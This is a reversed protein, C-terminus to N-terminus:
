NTTTNDFLRRMKDSLSTKPSVATEPQGLFQIAEATAAGNNITLKVYHHLPPHDHQHEIRPVRAANLYLTEDQTLQWTRLGGGKLHHHMHGAVVATVRKGKQKAYAIAAQLDADGNDGGAPRFDIGWLDSRGNGLGTPGCHGLFLITESQAQDICQKLRAVSQAMSAIGYTRRLFPGFALYPGGFSFPRGVVIDFAEGGFRYHHTSYGGMVIAGLARNLRWRRIGQGWSTLWATRQWQRLEALLQLAIMTDHNGPILLAPKCLQSMVRATQLGEIHRYKGLDGVFLLLDLTSHNFAQVDDLDFANHVDGIIGITIM